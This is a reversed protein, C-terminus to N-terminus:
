LNIAGSNVIDQGGVVSINYPIDQVTQNRRQATVVIESLSGMDAPQASTTTSQAFAYPASVILTATSFFVASARCERLVKHVATSVSPKGINGNNQFAGTRTM